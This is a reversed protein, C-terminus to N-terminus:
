SKTIASVGAELPVSILREEDEESLPGLWFADLLTFGRQDFGCSTGEKYTEIMFDVCQWFM